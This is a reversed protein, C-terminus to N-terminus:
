WVPDSLPSNLSNIFLSASRDAQELGALIGIAGM